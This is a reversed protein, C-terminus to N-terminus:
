QFIAVASIVSPIAPPITPPGTPPATPITAPENVIAILKHYYDFLTIIFINFSNEFDKKIKKRDINTNNRENLYKSIFTIIDLRIPPIIKAEAIVNIFL